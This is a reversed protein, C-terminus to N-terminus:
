ATRPDAGAHFHCTACAQDGRTGVMQDWFLAKGLRALAAKDAVIAAYDGAPPAPPLLGKLSTLPRFPRPAPLGAAWSAAGILGIGATALLAVVTPTRMSIGGEPRAPRHLM